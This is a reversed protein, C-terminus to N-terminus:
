STFDHHWDDDNNGFGSARGFRSAAAEDSSLMPLSPVAPPNPSALLNPVALPKPFLSSTAKPVALMQVGFPVASSNWDCVAYM